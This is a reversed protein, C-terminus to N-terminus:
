RVHNNRNLLSTIVSFKSNRIIIKGLFSYLKANSKRTIRTLPDPCLLWIANCHVSNVNHTRVFVNMWITGQLHTLIEIQNFFFRKVTVTVPLWQIKKVIRYCIVALIYSVRRYSTDIVIDFVLIPKLQYNLM